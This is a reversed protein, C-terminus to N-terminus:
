RARTGCVPRLAALRELTSQHRVCEDRELTIAPVRIIEASARGQGWAAMAHQHSVLAFADQEVRGIKHKDALLEAGEGLSVTWQAPMAPNTLRWALTISHFTEHGRPYPEELKALVWPARSMSEVGGALCTNIDGLAVAHSTEVEAEM